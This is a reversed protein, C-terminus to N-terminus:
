RDGQQETRTHKSAQKKFTEIATVAISLNLFISITQSRIDLRM